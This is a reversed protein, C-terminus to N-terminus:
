KGHPKEEKTIGPFAQELKAWDAPVKCKEWHCITANTVGVLDGLAKQTYGAALRRDRIKQQAALRDRNAEYYAKQQAALRDRNAERYAKKQAALRDRNADYYAKQQAAVRDRNAEYYAKQQAAVRDRNAERYAKQQAAVRDRNAERYAKKHAAVREQRATRPHIIERELRDAEQYDAYDMTDNICDAQTCHLCDKNCIPVPTM